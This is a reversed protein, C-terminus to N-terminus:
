NKHITKVLFYGIVGLCANATWVIPPPLIGEKAYNTGAMLLPYYIILIPLFCAFFSAFIDSKQMKVALPAGVWIFFFCSFGAAWRRDPEARLRDLRGYLDDLGKAQKDWGEEKLLSWDGSLYAASSVMALYNKSIKIKNETKVIQDSIARLPLKSPSMEDYNTTEMQPLPCHYRYEGELYGGVNGDESLSQPRVLVVELEGKQYDVHIEAQDARVKLPPDKMVIVPSMLRKNEVRSVSISVGKDGDISFKGEKQLITYITDETSSLIIQAMGIYGQSVAFDNVWTCLLSILIALSWVPWLIRWPAIGLAKVAIIENAGAMRSFSTTTALLLTMPLSYRLQAITIYPILQVAYIFPIGRSIVEQVTLMITFLISLFLLVAFFVKLLELVIYRLFLPM